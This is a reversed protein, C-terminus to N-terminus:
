RRKRDERDFDYSPLVLFYHWYYCVVVIGCFDNGAIKWVILFVTWKGATTGIFENVGISLEKCLGGVKEGITAWEEVKEVTIDPETKKRLDSLQSIQEASLGDTEVSVPLSFGCSAFM